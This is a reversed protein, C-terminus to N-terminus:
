HKENARREIEADILDDFAIRETLNRKCLESFQRANLKRVCEYRLWGLALESKSRNKPDCAEQVLDNIGIM